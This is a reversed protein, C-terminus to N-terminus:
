VYVCVCSMGINFICTCMCAHMCAFACACVHITYQIYERMHRGKQKHHHERIFNTRTAVLKLLVHTAALTRRVISV